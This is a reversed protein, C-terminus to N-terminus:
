ARGRHALREPDRSPETENDKEIAVMLALLAKRTEPSKGGGSGPSCFEISNWMFGDRESETILSLGVDGDDQLVLQIKGTPSMDEMRSAMNGKPFVFERLESETPQPVPNATIASVIENARIQAKRIFEHGHGDYNKGDLLIGAAESLKELVSHLPWAQDAGYWSPYAPETPQAPRLYLCAWCKQDLHEDGFSYAIIRNSPEGPLRCVRCVDLKRAEAVSLYDSM